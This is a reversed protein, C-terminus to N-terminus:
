LIEELTTVASKIDSIADAIADSYEESKIYNESNELNEPMNGRADDEYDKINDLTDTLAMIQSLITKIRQRRANNM